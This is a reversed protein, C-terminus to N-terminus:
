RSRRRPNHPCLRLSPPVGCLCLDQSRFPAASPSDQTGYPTSPVALAPSTPLDSATLVRPTATVPAHAQRDPLSCPDDPSDALGKVSPWSRRLSKDAACADLEAAGRFADGKGGGDAVAACALAASSLRAATAVDENFLRLGMGGYSQPLVAEDRQLATFQPLGVIDCMGQLVVDEVRRLPHALFVWLTNRM